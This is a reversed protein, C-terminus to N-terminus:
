NMEDLYKIYNNKLNLQVYQCNTASNKTIINKECHYEHNDSVKKPCQYIAGETSVENLSKLHADKSKLLYEYNPIVTVFRTDSKTPIPIIHFLEM